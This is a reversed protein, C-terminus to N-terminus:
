RRVEHVSKTHRPLSPWLGINGPRKRMGNEHGRLDRGDRGQGISHIM